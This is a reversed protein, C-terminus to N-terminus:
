HKDETIGWDRWISNLRQAYTQQMRQDYYAQVSPDEPMRGQDNSAVIWTM